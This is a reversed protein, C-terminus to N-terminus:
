VKVNYKKEAYEKLTKMQKQSQKSDKGTKWKGFVKKRQERVNKSKELIQGFYDESKITSYKPRAQPSTLKGGEGIGLLKDSMRRGEAQNRKWVDAVFKAAH